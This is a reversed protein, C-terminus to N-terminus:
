TTMPFLCIVLNLHVKKLQLKGNMNEVYNDWFQGINKNKIFYPSSEEDKLGASEIM